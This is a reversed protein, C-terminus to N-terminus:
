SAASVLSAPLLTRVPRTTVHDDSEGAIALTEAVPSTVADASPLAVIVAVLSPFVPVDEIVMTGTGTAVTVTESACVVVVTPCVTCADAVVRSAEPLMRVPRATVHLVPLGATAVTEAVPSTVATLAPDTCIMAILSVLVPLAVSVTLGTGTAVTVTLKDGLEIVATPVDCALAVVRSALLLTRVPRAIAHLELLVDTAVTSAWPTTVATATPAAFMTAILSPFDPLAGSVTVGAGTAETVTEVGVVGTFTPLVWCSVAVVFSAFFLTRVPRVTVHTELLGVTNLTLALPFGAVTVARATPVAVIVAVLSDTDEAGVGVIVTFGTGTADTVTLKAGLEIVATPVDWALAVVRSALLLTKVPREMVHLELLVETAVTSACPTTVATATPVAFM